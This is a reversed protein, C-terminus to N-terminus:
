SKEREAELREQEQLMRVRELQADFATSPPSRPGAAGPRPAAERDLHSLFAADWNAYLKGVALTWNRFKTVERALDLRM